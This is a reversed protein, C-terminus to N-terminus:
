PISNRLSGEASSVYFSFLDAVLARLGARYCCHSPERLLRLAWALRGGILVLPCFRAGTLCFSDQDPFVGRWGARAIGGRGGLARLRMLSVADPWLGSLWPGGRARRWRVVPHRFPATGRRGNQRSSMRSLPGTGPGQGMVELTLRLHEGQQDVVIFCLDVLIFCVVGM